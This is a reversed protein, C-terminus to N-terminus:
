AQLRRELKKAQELYMRAPDIDMDCTPSVAAFISAVNKYGNATKLAPSALDLLSIGSPSRPIADVASWSSSSHLLDNSSSLVSHCDAPAASRDMGSVTNARSPESLKAQKIRCAPM